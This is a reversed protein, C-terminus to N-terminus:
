AYSSAMLPVSKVSSFFAARVAARVVTLCLWTCMSPMRGPSGKQM